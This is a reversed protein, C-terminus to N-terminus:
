KSILGLKKEKRGKDEMSSTVNNRLILNERRKMLNTGSESM